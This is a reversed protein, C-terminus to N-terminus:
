LALAALSAVKSNSPVRKAKLYHQLQTWASTSVVLCHGPFDYGLCAHWAELVSTACSNALWMCNATKYQCLLQLDCALM